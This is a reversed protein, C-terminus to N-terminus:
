VFSHDGKRIVFLHEMEKPRIIQTLTGDIEGLVNPMDAIEYVKQKATHIENSRRPFIIYRNALRCISLTVHVVIRSVSSKHIGVADGLVAYFSGSLYYRLTCFIQLMGPIPKAPHFTGFGITLLM